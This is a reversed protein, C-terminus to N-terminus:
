SGACTKQLKARLVDSPDRAMMGSALRRAEAQKGLACYAKLRSMDRERALKGRPFRRQHQQLVDLAEGHNGANAAARARRLLEVEAGLSDEPEVEATSRAAKRAPASEEVLVPDEVPLSQAAPQPPVSAIVPSPEAIEPEALVAVPPPDVPVVAEAVEPEADGRALVIAAAAVGIGGVIALVRLPTLWGASGSGIGASGSGDALAPGPDGADVRQEVAAWVREHLSPDPSDYREAAALVSRMLESSKSM